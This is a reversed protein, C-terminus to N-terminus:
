PTVGKARVTRMANLWRNLISSGSRYWVPGSSDWLGFIGEDNTVTGHHFLGRPVHVFRGRQLHKCVSLAKPKLINVLATNSKFPKWGESLGFTNTTKNHPSCCLARGDFVWLTHRGAAKLAKFKGLYSDSLSHVFEIVDGTISHVADARFRQGNIDIQSEINWGPLELMALKASAHWESEEWRACDRSSDGDPPHAWHWSVIDGCKAILPSECDPCRHFKAIADPYARKGAHDLLM